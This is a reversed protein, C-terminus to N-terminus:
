QPLVKGLPQPAATAAFLRDVREKETLGDLDKTLEKGAEVRRYGKDAMCTRMVNNIMTRKERAQFFGNFLSNVALAYMNPSYTALPPPKRVGGALEACYGFDEAFAERAIDPKHFYVPGAAASGAGVACAALGIGAIAKRM